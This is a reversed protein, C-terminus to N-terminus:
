KLLGIGNKKLEILRKKYLTGVARKFEKKSMSFCKHIEEPSSKDHCPIFGGSKNLRYLIVDASKPVSSYGPKKMSLDIKGDERIRMIYGKCTDGIFLKQYTENLYMRGYYRNDVVAIIGITTISHVLLDVQQGVKLDRTNKDCNASIQTTGYVRHTRNDQCIKVLYKKGPEMRNQQENKPVLLDKELGWDMFTGFPAVDKAILFVFDGVVGAPTLTTAVLRDESDTYVFVDLRDGISLRNPVYKNPLLVRDDGTGLYVGFDSRAQVNLRNYRGIKISTELEPKSLKETHKKSHSWVNKFNTKKGSM